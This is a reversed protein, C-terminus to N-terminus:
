MIISAKNHIGCPVSKGAEGSKDRIWQKEVEWILDIEISLRPVTRLGVRRVLCSRNFSM